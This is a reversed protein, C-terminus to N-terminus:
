GISSSCSSSSSKLYCVIGEEVSNGSSGYSANDSSSNSDKLYYVISTITHRPVAHACVVLIIYGLRAYNFLKKWNPSDIMILM